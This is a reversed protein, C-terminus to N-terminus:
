NMYFCNSPAYPDTVFPNRTNLLLQLTSTCSAASTYPGFYIYPGYLCLWSSPTGYYACISFFYWGSGAPATQAESPKSALAGLVALVGTVALISLRKFM